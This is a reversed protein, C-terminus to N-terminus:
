SRLSCSEVVVVLGATNCCSASRRSILVLFLELLLTTVMIQLLDMWKMVDAELDDVVGSYIGMGMVGGYGM